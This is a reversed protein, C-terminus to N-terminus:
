AAIRQGSRLLPKLLEAHMPRALAITHQNKHYRSRVFKGDHSILRDMFLAPLSVPLADNIRHAFMKPIFSKGLCDNIANPVDTPDQSFM